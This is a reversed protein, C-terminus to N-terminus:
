RYWRYQTGAQRNYNFPFLTRTICSRSAAMDARRFDAVTPIGTCRAIINADGIQLTRPETADPLHLVTQGHSGVARIEGPKCGTQKLIKLVADAFLRGLVVDMQTIADMPSTGSLNRVATRVQDPIPYQEYAQLGISGSHIDVLATDIADM